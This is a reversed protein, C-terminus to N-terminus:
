MLGFVGRCSSRKVMNAMEVGAMTETRVKAEDTDNGHTAPWAVVPGLDCHVPVNDEDDNLEQDDSFAIEHVSFYLTGYTKSHQIKGDSRVICM